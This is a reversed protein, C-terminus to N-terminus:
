ILFATVPSLFLYFHLNNMNSSSELEQTLHPPKYTKNSVYTM